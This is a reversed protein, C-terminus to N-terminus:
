SVAGSSSDEFPRVQPDGSEGSVLMRIRAEAKDLLSACLRTLAVGEEFLVLAEELKVEGAELKRVIVELRSYAEEFTPRSEQPKEGKGAAQSVM